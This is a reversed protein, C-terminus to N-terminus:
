GFLGADDFADTIAIMLDMGWLSLEVFAVPNWNSYVPNPNHVPSAMLKAFEWFLTGKQKDDGPKPLRCAQYFLSRENYWSPLKRAVDAVLKRQVAPLFANMFSTRRENGLRSLAIRDTLHLAFVLVEISGREKVASDPEKTDSSILHRFFQPLFADSAEFVISSALEAASQLDMPKEPPAAM